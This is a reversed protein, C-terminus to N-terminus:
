ICDTVTAATWDRFTDHSVFDIESFVTPQALYSSASSLSLSLSLSLNISLM